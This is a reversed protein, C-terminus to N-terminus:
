NLVPIPNRIVASVNKVENIARDRLDGPPFSEAWALAAAADQRAWQYLVSVAAEIQPDGPTMDEVVWQAAERPATQAQVFAVRGILQDRRADQPHGAIWALAAALDKEAWKQALDELADFSQSASLYSERMLAAQAPNAEAVQLCVDTLTREREGENPLGAAWGLAAAADRAAWLKAVQQLLAEHADALTNTEALRAAARPDALMLAPLLNTFAFERTELNTSALAQEIAALLAASDTEAAAFSAPQAPRSVPVPADPDAPRDLASNSGSTSVLAGTAVPEPVAVSVPPTAPKPWFVAIACAAVVGFILIAKTKM